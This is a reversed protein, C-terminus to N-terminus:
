TVSARECTGDMGDLSGDTDVVAAHQFALMGWALKAPVHHITDWHEYADFTETLALHVCHKTFGAGASGPM